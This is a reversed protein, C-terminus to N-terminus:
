AIANVTEKRRVKLPLSNLMRFGLLPEYRVENEPVALEMSEFDRLWARISTHIELRALQNGVCYHIGIGFSTHARKNKRELDIMLPHEFFAPDTSGAGWMLFITAGKPVMVDGVQIDALARRPMSASPSNIRIVEEIFAMIRKPDQKLASWLNKQTALILACSSIANRTTENGGVTTAHALSLVENLSFLTGDHKRANAFTGMMSEDPHQRLRFVHEAFYDYGAVVAKAGEMAKDPSSSPDVLQVFLDSYHRLYKADATPLGLILCIIQMPLPVAFREVFDFREDDPIDAMLGDVIEVVKPKWAQIKHPSLATEALERYQKHNPPDSTVTTHVVEYGQDSFLAAIEPTFDGWRWVEGVPKSSFNDTDRAIREIDSRRTAMFVPASVGPLHLRFLPAERQLKAWTTYPCSLREPDFVNLDALPQDAHFVIQCGPATFSTM